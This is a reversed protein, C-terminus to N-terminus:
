WLLDDKFNRELLKIEDKELLNKAKSVNKKTKKLDFNTNKLKKINLFKNIKESSSKFKLVFDEFNIQMINKKHKRNIQNKIKLINKYWRIFLNIDYGPYAFSGRSKMSYFISRPDRNVQIIKLNDFYKFAISPKWYNTAQDLIINKNKINNIKSKFFNIFLKKTKIIFLEKEVPLIMKFSKYENYKKKFIKINIKSKFKEIQNLSIRKYQPLGIYEIKKIEKIYNFSLDLFNEGYVKKSKKLKDTKLNNLNECYKKFQYISEAANNISFNNYFNQYLNEIGYPDSILRMEEGHCPSAFDERSLLYDHIAGGGSNGPSM